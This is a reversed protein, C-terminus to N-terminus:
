LVSSRSFSAAIWHDVDKRAVYTLGFDEYRLVIDNFRSENFGSLILQGSPAVTGAITEAYDLLVPALINALVLEYEGTAMTVDGLAIEVLHGVDNLQINIATSEVAAPALDICSARMGYRKALAIGLVGTGCGLDLVSHQPGLDLEDSADLALHLTAQTTPHDGIGFSGLPEVYVITNTNDVNNLQQTALLERKWDPVIVISGVLTVAAFDRWTDGIAADVFTISTPWSLFTEELAHGAIHSMWRSLPDTGLDTLLLTSLDDYPVEQLAQAGCAWLADSAMECLECPVLLNLLTHQDPGANGAQATNM